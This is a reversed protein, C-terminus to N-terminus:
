PTQEWVDNIIIPVTVDLVRYIKNDRNLYGARASLPIGYMGLLDVARADGDLEFNKHISGILNGAARVVRPDIGDQPESKMDTSVRAKVALRCSTAAAGSSQIPDITDTFIECHTGLGPSNKAEHGNVTDFLGLRSAHSILADQYVEYDIFDDSSM